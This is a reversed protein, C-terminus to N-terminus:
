SSDSVTYGCCKSGNRLAHQISCKAVGLQRAAEGVSTFRRGDSLVVSKGFRLRFKALPDFDESNPWHEECFERLLQASMKFAEAQEKTIQAIGYGRCTPTKGKAAMRVFNPNAQTAKAAQEISDFVQASPGAQARREQTLPFAVVPVRKANLWCKRCLSGQLFSVTPPTYSHGSNCILRLKGHVGPYGKSVVTYNVENARRVIREWMEEEATKINAPSLDLVIEDYDSALPVGGKICAEKIIRKLDSIYTVTNLERIEVLTIGKRRCFDRRRQDHENQKRFAAEGGWDMQPEYHQWGNHEIALKLSANYIDLELPRDGIGRLEKVRVKQFPVRFLQEAAAKCQREALGASCVNCFTEAQSLSAYSRYFKHGRNCLWTSHHLSSKAMELLQGGRALALAEYEDKTIRANHACKPCSLGQQIANYPAFTEHGCGRFRVHLKTASNAYEKSLLDIGRKDLDSRVFELSYRRRADREELSCKPCGSGGRINGFDPYWESGCEDCRCHLRSYNRESLVSVLTIGRKKLFDAVYARPLRLKESITKKGCEPCGHGRKLHRYKTTWINGCELCECQIPGEVGNFETSVLKIRRTALVKMVHEVSLRNDEWRCVPCWTGACSPFGRVLQFQATWAPHDKVSCKWLVYSKATEIEQSLCRGGRAKAIAYAQAEYSGSYQNKAMRSKLKTTEPCGEIERNFSFAPIGKPNLFQRM